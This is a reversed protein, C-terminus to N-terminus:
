LDAHSEGQNIALQPLESIWEYGPPEALWDTAYAVTLDTPVQSLDPLNFFVAGAAIVIAALVLPSRRVKRARPRYGIVEDLGPPPVDTRDSGALLRGLSDKNM